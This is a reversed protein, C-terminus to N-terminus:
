SEAPGARGAAPSAPRGAAGDGARNSRRRARARGDGRRRTMAQAGSFWWLLAVQRRPREVSVPAGAPGAGFACRWSAADRGVGGGARLRRGGSRPSGGDAGGGLRRRRPMEPKRVARWAEPARCRGPESPGQARMSSVL